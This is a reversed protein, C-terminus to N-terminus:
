GSGFRGASRCQIRLKLLVRSIRLAIFIVFESPQLTLSLSQCLLFKLQPPKIKNEAEATGFKYRVVKEDALM